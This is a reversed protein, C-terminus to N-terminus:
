RATHDNAPLGQRDCNAPAPLLHPLRDRFAAALGVGAGLVLWSPGGIYTTELAVNTLATTIVAVIAGLLAPAYISVRRLRWIRTLGIIFALLVLAAAPYGTYFAYGIFSNHPGTVQTSLDNGLYDVEIPHDAGAGFVPSKNAAHIAYSWMARRIGVNNAAAVDTSATASNSNALTRGILPGAVPIQTPVLVGLSIAMAIAAVSTGVALLTTMTRAGSRFHRSAMWAVLVALFITLAPGRKANFGVLLVTGVLFSAGLWRQRPMKPVIAFAGAVALYLGAASAIVSANLTLLLTLGVAVLPLVYKPLVSLLQEVNRQRALWGAIVAAIIPYLALVLGRTADQYGHQHGVYVSHLALLAVLGCVLPFPTTLRLRALPLMLVAALIILVDPLYVPTVGITAYVKGLAFLPVLYAVLATYLLVNYTTVSSRRPWLVINITISIVAVGAAAYAAFVSVAYGVALLVTTAALAGAGVSWRLSPDDILRSPAFHHVARQDVSM